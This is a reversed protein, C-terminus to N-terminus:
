SEVREYLIGHKSRMLTEISAALATDQVLLGLEVNTHEAPYSLNASTVLTLTRDVILFKAHSVYRRRRGPPTTTRYVTADPMHEAVRTATGVRGDLYLTVSVGPRGTAEALADWMWSSRAFNFSSCVVSMRAEDIIKRAQSTLRGITAEAGPMTWVPTLTSPVARAGGVARLVAVSIAVRHPGLDASTLLRRADDRRSPHIERLAQSLTDGAQLTAALQEAEHATLFDGLAAYPDPETTM